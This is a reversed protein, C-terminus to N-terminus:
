LNVGFEHVVLLRGERSCLNLGWVERPATASRVMSAVEIVSFGVCGRDGSSDLSKMETNAMMPLCQSMGQM